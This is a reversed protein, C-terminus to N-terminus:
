LGAAGARGPVRGWGRRRGPQGRPGGGEGPGDVQGGPCDGGRRGVQGGPCGGGRRGVQGGPCGGGRRGVQGGPCGGGRRGVQGGPCGGGRRGVQGGPCGGCGALGARGAAGALDGLWVGAAPRHRRPGAGRRGSAAARVDAPRRPTRRRRTAPRRTAQRRTAPRRTAPRRTAPRRTAPRRRAPRRTAPRRTRRRRRAAKADGAKPDGPSVHAAKEDCPDCPKGDSGTLGGPVAPPAVVPAPAPKVAMLEVTFTLEANAPIKGRAREGYALEAPIILKRLGGVKMGAIGTDWGKIVRGQGLPFVLPRPRALSSDFETGDKLTGRYHMSVTDGAKAEPGDGLKFDAVVLGKDLKRTAVPKGEFATLPQPPPLPPTFSLLEITFILTSNPPIKGARREGYGLKAPIVLKRKGGVKMGAVGEDWGQIVRGAGLEFTFPRKRPVSTDFVTGDTLYGTYHVEVEGGKVATVGEGVVFDSVSIGGATQSTAVATGDFPADFKIDPSPELLLAPAAPAVPPSAKAPPSM